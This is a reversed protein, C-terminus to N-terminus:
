YRLILGGIKHMQFSDPSRPNISLLSGNHHGQETSEVDMPLMTRDVCGNLWRVSLREGASTSTGRNPM